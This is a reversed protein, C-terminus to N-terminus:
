LSDSVVSRIIHVSSFQLINDIAQFICSIENKLSQGKFIYSKWEYLSLFNCFLPYCKDQQLNVPANMVQGVHFAALVFFDSVLFSFCGVVGVGRKAYFFGSNESLM